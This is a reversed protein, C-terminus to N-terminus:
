AICVAIPIPILESYDRSPQILSRVSACLTVHPIAAEPTLGRETNYSARLAM